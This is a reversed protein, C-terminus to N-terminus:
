HRKAPPRVHRCALREYRAQGHNEGSGADTDAVGKTPLGVEVMLQSNAVPKEALQPKVRARQQM